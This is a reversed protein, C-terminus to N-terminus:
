QMNLQNAIESFIVKHTHNINNLAGHISYKGLNPDNNVHFYIDCVHLMQTHYEFRYNHTNLNIYTLKKSQMFFIIEHNCIYM